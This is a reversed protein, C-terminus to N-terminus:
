GDNRAANVCQELEGLMQVSIANRAPARDLTLLSIHRDLETADSSQGAPSQHTVSRSLPSESLRELYALPRATSYARLATRLASLRGLSKQPALRPACNPLSGLRYLAPRTSSAM